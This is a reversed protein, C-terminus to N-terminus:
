KNTYKGDITTYGVESVLIEVGGEDSKKYLLLSVLKTTRSNLRSVYGVESLM